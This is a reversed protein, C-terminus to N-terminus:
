EIVASYMLNSDNKDGVGFYEITINKFGAKQLLDYLSNKNFLVIHDHPQYIDQESERWHLSKTNPTTGFLLAPKQALKRIQMLAKLPDYLHEIVEVMVFADFKASKFDEIMTTHTPLKFVENSWNVAKSSLELCEVEWGRSFLTYSLHGLGSGIELLRGKSKKLKQDFAHDVSGAIYRTGHPNIITLYTTPDELYTDGRIKNFNLARSQLHITQCNECILYTHEGVERFVKHKKKSCVDCRPARKKDSSILRM